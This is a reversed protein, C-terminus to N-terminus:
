QVHRGSFTSLKYRELIAAWERIQNPPFHPNSLDSDSVSKYNIVHQAWSNLNGRRYYAVPFEVVAATLNVFVLIAALASQFAPLGPGRYRALPSVTEPSAKPNAEMSDRLEATLLILGVVGIVTSTTYRDALAQQVPDVRGIALMAASGWGFLVLSLSFASERLQARVILMTLVSCSVVMLIAGSLIAMAISSQLAGSAAIIEPATAVNAGMAGLMRLIIRNFQLAHLAVSSHFDLLYLGIFLAAFLIWIVIVLVREARPRLLWLVILGVPWAILGNSFCLSSLGAAAAAGLLSLIGGYRLLFMSLVFFFNTSFSGLGFGILSAEQRLSFLCISIPIIVLTICLRFSINEFAKAAYLSLIAFYGALFSVGLFYEIRINWHALSASALVIIRHVLIAHENHHKLLDRWTLIGSFWRDIMPVLQWEDYYPVDVSFSNVYYIACAVPIAAVLALLINTTVDRLQFCDRKM